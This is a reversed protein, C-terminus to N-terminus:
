VKAMWVNVNLFQLFRILGIFLRKFTIKRNISRFICFMHKFYEGIIHFFHTQAVFNLFQSLYILKSLSRQRWINILLKVKSAIGSILQIFSQCLRLTEYARSQGKTAKFEGNLSLPNKQIKMRVKLQFYNLFQSRDDITSRRSTRRVTAKCRRRSREWSSLKSKISCKTPCSLKTRAKVKQLAM